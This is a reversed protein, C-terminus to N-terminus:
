SRPRRSRSRDRRAHCLRARRAAEAQDADALADGLQAALKPEFARRALAGPQGDLHGRARASCPPARQSLQPDHEAVIVREHPLPQPLDELLLAVPFDDGLGAVAAVGDLLDELELGVDGHEVDAHRQQVADLRRALDDLASGSTRTRIRLMCESSAYM